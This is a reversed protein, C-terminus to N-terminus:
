RWGGGVVSGTALIIAVLVLALSLALGSLVLHAAAVDGAQERYAHIRACNMMSVLVQVRSIELPWFTHVTSSRTDSHITMVSRFVHLDITDQLRM